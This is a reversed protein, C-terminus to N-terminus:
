NADRVLRVSYGRERHGDCNDNLHTSDFCVRKVGNVDTAIPTSSQYYGNGVNTVFTGNRLGAAPLFVCGAAEMKVWATADYNNASYNANATNISAPATVGDPHTYSDPFLIVGYKSNVKAKVYRANDTNNVTSAARTDFLYIWEDITLTRWGTGITNGWDSKLAETAVNGYTETSNTTKSNSIGYQAAGTWTSSAGVWGFLDVTGAASVSGNGNISKNSAANGVFDWQNAAIGWTWTEQTNPDSDASTCVAQLNGPAFYVQDGNSNITFKGNLKIFRNGAWCRNINYIKSEFNRTGLSITGVVTSGKKIAIQWDHTGGEGGAFAVTGAGSADTTFGGRGKVSNSGGDPYQLTAIYNTSAALGSLSCNIIPAVSALSYGSGSTYNGKVHLWTTMLTEVDASSGEFLIVRSTPEISYGTNEELGAHVLTAESDELPDGEANYSMENGNFDYAMLEGTFTASKGDASPAGVMTLMGALWQVLAAGDVQKRVYLRDGETFKLVRNGADNRGVESRTTADDSIGASVTIKVGNTTVQPQKNNETLIDENTCSATTLTLAAAITLLWSTHKLKMM